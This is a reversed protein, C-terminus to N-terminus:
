SSANTEKQVTKHSRIKTVVLDTTRKKVPGRVPYRRAVQLNSVSPIAIPNTKRNANTTNYKQLIVHSRTRLM